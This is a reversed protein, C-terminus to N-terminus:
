QAFDTLQQWLHQWLAIKFQNRTHPMPALDKRKNPEGPRIRVLSWGTLLRIRSPRGGARHQLASRYEGVPLLRNVYRLRWAAFAM